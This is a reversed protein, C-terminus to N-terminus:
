TSSVLRVLDKWQGMTVTNISFFQNGNVNNKEVSKTGAHSGSWSCLQDTCPCPVNEARRKTTRTLYLSFDKELCDCPTVPVVCLIGSPGVSVPPHSNSLLFKFLIYDFLLWARGSMNKM